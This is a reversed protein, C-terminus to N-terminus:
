PQPKYAMISTMHHPEWATLLVPRTHHYNQWGNRLEELIMRLSPKITQFETVNTYEDDDLHWVGVTQKADNHYDMLLYHDFPQCEEWSTVIFIRYIRTPIHEKKKFYPSTTMWQKHSKWYKVKNFDEEMHQLMREIMDCADMEYAM